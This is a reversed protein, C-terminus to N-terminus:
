AAVYYVNKKTNNVQAAKIWESVCFQQIRDLRIKVGLYDCFEFIFGVIIM